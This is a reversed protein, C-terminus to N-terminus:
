GSHGAKGRRKRGRRMSRRLRDQVREFTDPGIRESGKTAFYGPWAPNAAEADTGPNLTPDGRIAPDAFVSWGFMSLEPLAIPGADENVVRGGKKSILGVAGKAATKLADTVTVGAQKAATGVALTAQTLGKGVEKSTDKFAKGTALTAQTLGKGVEKSANSFFVGGKFVGGTQQGARMFAKAPDSLTQSLVKSASKGADSFVNAVQQLPNSVKIGWGLGLEERGLFGDDLFSM